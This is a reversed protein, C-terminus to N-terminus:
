NAYAHRAFCSSRRRETGAGRLRGDACASPTIMAIHLKPDHHKLVVALLLLQQLLIVMFTDICSSIDGSSTGNTVSNSEANRHTANTRMADARGRCWLCYTSAPQQGLMGLGSRWNNDVRFFQEFSQYPTHIALM